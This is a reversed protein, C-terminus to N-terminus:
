ARYTNHVLKACQQRDHHTFSQKGSLACVCDQDLDM